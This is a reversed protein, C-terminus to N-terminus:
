CVEKHDEEKKQGADEREGGKTLIYKSDSSELIIRSVGCCTLVLGVNKVSKDHVVTM